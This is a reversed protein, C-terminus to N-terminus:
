VRSFLSKPLIPKYIGVKLICYKLAFAGATHCIIAAILLTSTAEGTFMSIFSIILPIVIGFLIIGVWFIVAVNGFLLEKVSLEATSSQYTANM